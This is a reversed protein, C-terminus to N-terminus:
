KIRGKKKLEEKGKRNEDIVERGNKVPPMIFPTVAKRRRKAKFM